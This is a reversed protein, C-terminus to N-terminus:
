ADSRPRRLIFRDYPTPSPAPDAPTPIGLRYYTVRLETKGGPRHGPAVDFAAFGYRSDDDRRATWTADEEVPDADSLGEAERTFVRSQNGPKAPDRDYNPTPVSTGGGGLVLYVTGRTTDVVDLSRDSVAPRLTESGAEAGRLAFSREYNHDHGSLVLDVGYRDLLPQLHQRLGLDSGNANASSVVLQHCVVVVWDVARSRRAAALEAEVWARQAGGSYGRLYIDGGKQYLWDDAAVCVFRVSGVTYAYWHGGFRPSGNAPLRFRALYGDFGQAGNGAEIEHNGAVPMWPRHRASRENTRLFRDWTAARQGPPQLNGYCLDGAHINFLPELGDVQDVIWSGMPAGIVDRADGSGQDGFCTFRFAARGNPATVFAGREPEAGDHAVEYVYATGPRLRELTAHHCRVERQLAAPVRDDADLAAVTDATIEAGLGEAAPGYRVVPRRVAGDSTWSVTMGRAPNSGFTLRLQDVPPVSARASSVAGLLAPGATLAAGGVVADRLLRRRTILDPVPVARL